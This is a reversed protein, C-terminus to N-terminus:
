EGGLWLDDLVVNEPELGDLYTTYLDKSVVYTDGDTNIWNDDNNMLQRAPRETGYWMNGEKTYGLEVFVKLLYVNNKRRIAITVMDTNDFVQEDSYLLYNSVGNPVTLRFRLKGEPYIHSSLTLGLNGNNMKFIDANQWLNMGRIIVTFDDEILFGEDYYLTKDRLDIM